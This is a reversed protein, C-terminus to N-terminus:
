NAKRRTQNSLHWRLPEELGDVLQEGPCLDFALVGRVRNVPPGDVKQQAEHRVVYVRYECAVILREQVDPYFKSICSSSSPWISFSSSSKSLRRIRSSIFCAASLFFYPAAQERLRELYSKRASYLISRYKIIIAGHNKDSGHPMQEKNRPPTALTQAGYSDSRILAKRKFEVEEKLGQRGLWGQFVRAIKCAWNVRSRRLIM